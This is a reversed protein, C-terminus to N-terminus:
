DCGMSLYAGVWVLFREAEQCVSYVINCGKVKGGNGAWHVASCSGLGICDKVGMHAEDQM